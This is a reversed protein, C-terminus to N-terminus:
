GRPCTTTASKRTRTRRPRRSRARATTSSRSTGGSPPISTTSWSRTAQPSTRLRRSPTSPERPRSSSTPSILRTSVTSTATRSTPASSARDQDSSGSGLRRVRGLAPLWLLSETSGDPKKMTLFGSGKVDAPATFKSITKEVEGKTHDGASWNTISRTLSQGNKTVVMTLTEITGKSKPANFVKDM